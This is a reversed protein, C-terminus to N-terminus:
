KFGISYKLCFFVALLTYFLQSNISFFPLKTDSKILHKFDSEKVELLM